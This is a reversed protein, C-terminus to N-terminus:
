KRKLRQWFSRPAPLQKQREEQLMLLALGTQELIGKQSDELYKIRARYDELLVNAAKLEAELAEIRSQLAQTPMSAQEQAAPSTPAETPETPPEEVSSAENSLGYYDLLMSLVNADYYIKRQKKSSHQKVFEKDKALLNYISQKSVQAISALENIDYQKM